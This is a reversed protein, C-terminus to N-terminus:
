FPVTIGISVALEAPGLRSQVAAFGKVKAARPLVLDAAPVADKVALVQKPTNFLTVTGGVGGFHEDWKPVYTYALGAALEWRNVELRLAPVSGFASFSAASDWDGKPKFTYTGGIDVNESVAQKFAKFGAVSFLPAQEEALPGFVPLLMWVLVLVVKRM